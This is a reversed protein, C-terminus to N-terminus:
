TSTVSSAAVPVAAQVILFMEERGSFIEGSSSVSRKTRPSTLRVVSPEPRPREIAFLRVFNISPSSTMEM